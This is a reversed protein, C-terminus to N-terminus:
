ETVGNLLMNLAEELEAIREEPTPKAVPEEQGDDYIEYEGNYAEEKAFQETEVSWPMHKELYLPEMVPKEETGTNILCSLFRYKIAKAM